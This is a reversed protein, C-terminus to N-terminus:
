SIHGVALISGHHEAADAIAQITQIETMFRAQWYQARADDFTYEFLYWLAGYLYSQPSMQLLWNVPNLSELTEIGRYYYCTYNAGDAPESALYWYPGQRNFAISDQAGTHRIKMFQDFSVYRLQRSSDGDPSTLARLEMFDNPIQLRGSVVSIDKVAEMSPVRLLENAKAEAMGIFQEILPVTIDGRASWDQIAVVLSQFDVIRAM